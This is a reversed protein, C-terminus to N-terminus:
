IPESKIVGEATLAAIEDASYGVEALVSANHEGLLPAILELDYPQESLRLPNGPVIVEGLIPDAVRRIMRRSEFYEHGVADIPDLVPACPVREAELRALVDADSPCTAMWAEVIANLEHRNKHREGLGKFREDHVLEPMGMARCMGAWQAHMVHLVIYGEPGQFVGMPSNLASKSGSRRPKWKGGTLGPGQVAIEHAHFMSDVMSIDVQQGRGTKERHYLAFGIAAAAHVGASVDAISTGVPMPPGDAPGTLALVGSYGQAILDFAVKHSYASERGFGSISAMILRPYRDRLAEWDLGRRQLVGLGFNEVLVDANALLRHLVEQGAVTSFDLCVSRKGNNQQVFYGSRGNRMVALTRSPDGHPAQEIKIVDAGLEAMLRTVTPGSLYQSLDIVRVGDLIPAQDNATPEHAHRDNVNRDNVDCEYCAQAGTSRRSVASYTELWSSEV